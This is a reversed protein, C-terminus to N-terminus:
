ISDVPLTHTRSSLIVQHLCQVTGTTRVSDCHTAVKEEVFSDYVHSDTTPEVLQLWNRYSTNSHGHFTETTGSSATVVSGHSTSPSESTSGRRRKTPCLTYGSPSSSLVTPVSVTLASGVGMREQTDHGRIKVM